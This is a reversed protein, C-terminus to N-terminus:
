KVEFQKEAFILTGDKLKGRVILRFQGLISSSSCKVSVSEEAKILPNWYLDQRMDPIGPETATPEKLKAQIQIANLNLRILQDSEKILSFDKKFTTISVIGSFRLNGYFRESTSFDIREIDKTGLDKILNLDRIPIGDILVLPMEEFFNHMADNLLQMGPENNYNRFKVGPLLEKSIETFNPLDIFLQPDVSNTPIGYYPYSDQKKVPNASLKLKDQGFIKQFTLADVNQTIYNKFEESVPQNIFKPLTGPAAFLDDMTIKFRQTPLERFCQVFAVVSGYYNELLFYFRGNTQTKYYQFGPISDPITLFVTVGSAPENTKKDTILGSLIIGKKETMGENAHDSRMTYTAPDFLRNTQAVCVFLDGDLETLLTKDINITTEIPHNAPYESLLGEFNIKSTKLEKSKESVITRKIQSINELGEFRNSIWIERIIKIKEATNKMYARVLYTGSSLSDPLQLYGDAQRNKIELSAGNIRIGSQNILDLYVIRSSNESPTYIKALLAEGSVYVDKDTYCGFGSEQQAKGPNSLFILLTSIIILRKM